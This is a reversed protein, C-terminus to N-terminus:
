RRGHPVAHAAPPTMAAVTQGRPGYARLFRGRFEDMRWVPADDSPRLGPNWGWDAGQPGIADLVAGDRAIVTVPVDHGPDDGSVITAPQHDGVLVVM